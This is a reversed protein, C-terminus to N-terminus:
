DVCWLRCVLKPVRAFCSEIELRLGPIKTTAGEKGMCKSPFFGIQPVKSFSRSIFIVFEQFKRADLM